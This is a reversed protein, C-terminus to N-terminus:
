LSRALLTLGAIVLVAYVAKLVVIAPVAAHLRNGLWFGALLAPLLAAASLLLGDQSLLGTAGFLVLRVVSSLMIMAANTARLAEKDRVRGSNYIAFLVGGTGFMASFAGGAFGIPACWARALQPPEGRRTLGYAAYALLFAGLVALLRQEAARLLLALGLAMGALMFPALWGVVDLRIRRRFRAGFALFVSFDLLMMLPVAFRLPLFQALLPLAIVTSGFGTLGFVAYAAAVVLAAAALTEPTVAM